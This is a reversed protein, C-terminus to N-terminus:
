KLFRFTSIISANAMEGDLVFHQKKHIVEVSNISGVEGGITYSIAPECDVVTDSIESIQIGNNDNKLGKRIDEVTKNGDEVTVSGAYVEGGSTGSFLAAKETFVIQKDSSQKPDVKLGNSEFEFGLKDNRYVVVGDKVKYRVCNSQQKGSQDLVDSVSALPKGSQSPIQGVQQTQCGAAVFFISLLLFKKM